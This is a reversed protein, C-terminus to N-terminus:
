LFTWSSGEETTGNDLADFEEDCEPCYISAFRLRPIGNEYEIRITM